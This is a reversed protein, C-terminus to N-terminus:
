NVEKTSHGLCLVENATTKGKASQGLCFMEDAM